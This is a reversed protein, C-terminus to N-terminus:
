PTYLRYVINYISLNAGDDTYLQTQLTHNGAPVSSMNQVFSGAVYSGDSSVYGLYPCLPQQMENGDVFTCIAWKNGAVTGSVQVNQEASVTCGGAPCKFTLPSDIPVFGSGVSTLSNSYSQSTSQLKRNFILDQPLARSVNGLPSGSVTKAQASRSPAASLAAFAGAIVLITSLFVGLRVRNSM